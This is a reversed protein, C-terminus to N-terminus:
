PGQFVGQRGNGIYDLHLTNKYSYYIARRFLGTTYAKEALRKRDIENNRYSEVFIDVAIGYM